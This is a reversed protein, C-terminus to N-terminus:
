KPLMILEVDKLMIGCNPGVSITIWSLEPNDAFPNQSQKLVTREFIFQCVNAYTEPTVAYQKPWDDLGFKENFYSRLEYVTM